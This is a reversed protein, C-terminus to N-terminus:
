YYQIMLMTKLSLTMRICKLKLPGIQQITFTYKGTAYHLLKNSLSAFM